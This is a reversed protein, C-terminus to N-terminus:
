YDPARGNIIGSEVLTVIGSSMGVAMGVKIKDPLKPFLFSTATYTIYAALYGDFLDGMHNMTDDVIEPFNGQPEDNWASPNLISSRPNFHEARWEEFLLLPMISVGEVFSKVSNTIKELSM